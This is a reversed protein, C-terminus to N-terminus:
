PERVARLETRSHRRGRAAPRPSLAGGSQGVTVAFQPEDFDLDFGDDANRTLRAPVPRQRYRVQAMVRQPLAEEPALFNARDASLHTWQCLERPGVIVTNTAGDLDVVHRPLHSKFLGLGRKQGITYFQIGQHEGVVAHDQSADVVPGPRPESAEQLYGRVSNAVFCLGNSSPKHATIFDLETAMARVQAKTYEGLPFLLYPLIARPLAWLFYAQDKGDDRGRHLESM